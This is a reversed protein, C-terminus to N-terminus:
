GHPHYKRHADRLEDLGLHTYVQTTALSSHGLLTQVSRIDAGNKLLSTAFTHRLSHPSINKALASKVLRRSLIYRVGRDTLAGGKTNLFLARENKNEGLFLRRKELYKKLADKSLADYLVFREKNGKGTIKIEQGGSLDSLELSVLEGVRLGSALLLEFLAKDRFDEKTFCEFDLLSKVEDNFLFTPLMKAARQSEVELINAADKYGYRMKFKVFGKVAALIRNISTSSLKSASLEALFGRFQFRQLDDFSIKENELYSALKELDKKYALVSNESLGKQTELYELFRKIESRM